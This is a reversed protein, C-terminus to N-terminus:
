PGYSKQQKEVPNATESVSGALVGASIQNGENALSVARSKTVGFM